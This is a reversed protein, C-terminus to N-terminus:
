AAGSDFKFGDIRILIQRDIEAEQRERVAQVNSTKPLDLKEDTDREILQIPTLADFPPDSDAATAGAFNTTRASRTQQLGYHPSEAANGAVRDLEARVDCLIALMSRVRERIPHNEPLKKAADNLRIAIVWTRKKRTPTGLSRPPTPRVPNDPAVTQSPTM